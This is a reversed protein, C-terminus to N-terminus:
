LLLMMAKTEASEPSEPLWADPFQLNFGTMDFQEDGLALFHGPLIKRLLPNPGLDDEDIYFELLAERILGLPDQDLKLRLSCLASFMLEDIDSLGYHENFLKLMNIHLNTEGYLWDYIQSPNRPVLLLLVRNIFNDRHVNRQACVSDIRNLVNEPISFTANATELKRLSKLLYTKSPNSNTFDSSSLQEIEHALVRSLFADQRLCAEDSYVRLAELLPKWVSVLVKRKSTDPPSNHTM